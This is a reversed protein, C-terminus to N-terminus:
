KEARRDHAQSRTQIRHSVHRSQVQPVGNSQANAQLLDPRADFVPETDSLSVNRRIVPFVVRVCEAGEEEVIKSNQTTKRNPITDFLLKLNKIAIRFDDSLGPLPAPQITCEYCAHKFHTGSGARHNGGIGLFANSRSVVGILTCLKTESGHENALEGLFDDPTLRWCSKRIFLPSGLYDSSRLCINRITDRRQEALDRRQEAVICNHRHQDKHIASM